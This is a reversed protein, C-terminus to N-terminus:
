RAPSFSLLEAFVCYNPISKVPEACWELAAGKKRVTYDGEHDEGMTGIEEWTIFSDGRRLGDQHVGLKGFEVTEGAGFAALAAPYFRAKVVKQLRTLLRVLDSGKLHGAEFWFEEGDSRRVMHTQSGLHRARFGYQFLAELQDWPCRAVKEGQIRLLGGSFVLVRLRTKVMLRVGQGLALLGGMLLILVIKMGDTDFEQDHHNWRDVLTAYCFAGCVLLLLPGALLYLVAGTRSSEYVVELTGLGEAEPPLGEPLSSIPDPLPPDAV